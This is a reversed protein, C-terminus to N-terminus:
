KGALQLEQIIKGTFRRAKAEKMRDPTHAIIGAKM